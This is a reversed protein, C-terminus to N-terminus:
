EKNDSEKKGRVNQWRIHSVRFASKGLLVVSEKERRDRKETQKKPLGEENTHPRDKNVQEREDRATTAIGSFIRTAGVV